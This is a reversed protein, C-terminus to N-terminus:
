PQIEARIKFEKEFGKELVESFVKLRYIGPSIEYTIFNSNYQKLKLQIDDENLGTLTRLYSEFDRFSSQSYNMLLFYYGDTQCEEVSLERYAKIIDPGRTKHELDEPTVHSLDLLEAIKDKMETSFNM